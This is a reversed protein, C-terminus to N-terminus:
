AVWLLVILLMYTGAALAFRKLLLRQLTPDTVRHSMM